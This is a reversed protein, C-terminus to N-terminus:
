TQGDTTDQKMPVVDVGGKDKQVHAEQNDFVFVPKGGAKNQVEVKGSKVSVRTLGKDVVIGLETGRIAATATPTEFTFTSRQNTLKKVNAWVSGTKVSVTTTNAKTRANQFVENLEFVTNEMINIITGEPTEIDVKSEVYTRIADKSSLKMGIKVDKWDKDDGKKVMVKGVFYSIKAGREIMQEAFPASVLFSLITVLSFLFSRNAISVIM